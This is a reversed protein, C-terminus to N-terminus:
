FIHKKQSVAENSFRIRLLTLTILMLSFLVFTPIHNLIYSIGYNFFLIFVFVNAQRECLIQLFRLCTGTLYGGIIIGTVAFDLYFTAWPLVGLYHTAQTAGSYVMETIYASGYVFPKDPYISRPVLLWLSDLFSCRGYMLEFNPNRDIFLVMNHFYDFYKIAGLIGYSSYYYQSFLFICVVFLTFLSIFIFSIRQIFYSYFVVGVLLATIITKKSGFFFFLFSFSLTLCAIFLLSRNRFRFLAFILSIYLFFQSFVYYMGAGSRHFQYAERTHFIWMTGVGSKLMLLLYFLISFFFFILSFFLLNSKVIRIKRANSKFVCFYRSVLRPILSSFYGLFISILFFTSYLLVTFSASYNEIQGLFLFPLLPSLFIKLFYEILFFSYANIIQRSASYYSLLFTFLSLLVFSGFLLSLAL